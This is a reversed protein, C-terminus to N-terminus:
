PHEGSTTGDDTKNSASRLSSAPLDIIDEEEEWKYENAEIPEERDAGFPANFNDRRSQNRQKDNLYVRSFFVRSTLLMFLMLILIVGAFFVIIGPFLAIVLFLTFFIAWPRFSM